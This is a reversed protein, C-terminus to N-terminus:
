SSIASSMTALPVPTDLSFMIPMQFSIFLATVQRRVSPIETSVPSPIRRGDIVPENSLAFLSNSLFFCEMVTCYRGPFLSCSIMDDSVGTM